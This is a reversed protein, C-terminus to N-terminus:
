QPLGEIEVRTVRWRRNPEAADEEAAALGLLLALVPVAYEM